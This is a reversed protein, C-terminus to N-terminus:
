EGGSPPDSTPFRAAIRADIEGDIEGDTPADPAERLEPNAETFEDLLGRVLDAVLPGHKAAHEALKGLWGLPTM